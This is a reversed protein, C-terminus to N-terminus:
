NGELKQKVLRLIENKDFGIAKLSEIFSNLSAEAMEKKMMKITNLNQTVFTGQGRRVEIVGERELEAYARSITNPNVGIKSSLERVSPIKSGPPLEGRVIKRKILDMIQM